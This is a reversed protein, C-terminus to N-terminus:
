PEGILDTVAELLTEDRFGSKALYHDAGASLGALRDEERDKYSVIMVPMGALVPDAKLRRTLEIGTMRPMDVDTLVLDFDGSRAVSLGEMGDSATIVEYGRNSLLQREVERVTLSDDVVLVRKPGKAERGGRPRGVRTLRGSGLLAAVSRVLDEGDLILAPSGDELLAAASVNPVKGLRPDLPKVALEREGLFAEVALAYTGEEGTLLVLPLAESETAEPEFGLLQAAQVLGVNAGDVQIFQRGGVSSVDERAAEFVRGIRALPLAYPQGAVRMVLSRVVSLTVPLRMVFSTGLGPASEVRLHGGAAHVMTKVVDLGVGRGSVGSVTKATTFGPLFLFDYLEAPSMRQAMEQSALGHESVRRALDAQDIGRGDDGVRVELMGGVHRASLTIRGTEPKGAATREEPNELGHDLSNRVLHILPAELKELIDRDVASLGGEVNLRAKKGLERALDRVMRPFARVGEGFPRMRSRRVQSYLRHAFTEMRRSHAEVAACVKAQVEGLEKVLSVAQAAERGVPSDEGDPTQPGQAALGALHEALLDGTERIAMRLRRLDSLVAPLSSTEVLCQAALGMLRGLVEASLRVSGEQPQDACDTPPAPACACSSTARPRVNRDPSPLAAADKGSRAAKPEGSPPASVPPSPAQPVDPGPAHPTSDAAPTNSPGEASQADAEPTAAQQARLIEALNRAEQAGDELAQPMAAPSLRALRGFFDNAALLADIRGPPLSATKQIDLLADEMAHALDVAQLLGVIRAAGKISHAARMLPEVRSPSPDAELGVLGNELAQHHAGLEMAFLEVLSLDAIDPSM